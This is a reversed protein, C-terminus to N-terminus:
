SEYSLIDGEGLSVEDSYIPRQFEPFDEIIMNYCDNTKAFNPEYLVDIDKLQELIALYERQADVDKVAVGSVCAMAYLTSVLENQAVGDAGRGDRKAYKEINKFFGHAYDMADRLREEM